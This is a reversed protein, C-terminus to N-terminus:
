RGPIVLHAAIVDSGDRDISDLVATTTSARGRDTGGPRHRDAGAAALAAIVGIAGM